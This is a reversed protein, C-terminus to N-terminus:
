YNQLDGQILRQNNALVYLVRQQYVAVLRIQPKVDQDGGVVREDDVQVLLSQHPKRCDLVVAAVQPVGAYM